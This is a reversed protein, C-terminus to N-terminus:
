RVLIVPVATFTMGVSLGQCIAPDPGPHIDAVSELVSRVTDEIGPMLVSVDAVGDDVSYWGGLEGDELGDPTYLFRLEVDHLFGFPLGPVIGAPLMASFDTVHATLRDPGTVSGRGLPQFPTVLNGPLLRRGDHELPGAPLALQLDIGGRDVMTIVILLEGNLIRERVLEDVPRGTLGEVTGILGGFADDVGRTGDTLSRYDRHFEECTADPTPSGSGSDMGDLNAGPARNGANPEPIHIEAIVFTTGDTPPPMVVGADPRIPPPAIGADRRGADVTPTPTGPGDHVQYCGLTLTGALAVLLSARNM